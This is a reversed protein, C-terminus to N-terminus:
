RRELLAKIQAPMEIASREVTGYEITALRTHQEIGSVYQIVHTASTIGAFEKHERMEQTTEMSGMASEMRTRTGILLGSEVSFCDTAERGSNYVFRVEVCRQGNYESFGISERSSFHEADRLAVGPHSTELIAALERGEMLRPGQMPDISWAVGDLVGINQEGFGTISVRTVMAQPGAVKMEITGTMGAAPIELTGTTHTSGAGLVRDRGGIAQVYREIVQEAPPPAEQAAVAQALLATMVAASGLIARSRGFANM